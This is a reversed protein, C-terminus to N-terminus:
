QEGRQADCAPGSAESQDTQPQDTGVVEPDPETGCRWCPKSVDENFAGCSPCVRNLWCVPDGM